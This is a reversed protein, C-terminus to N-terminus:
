KMTEQPIIVLPGVIWGDHGIKGAAYNPLLKKTLGDEDVLFTFDSPETTDPDEILPELLRAWRIWTPNIPEIYGGVATQLQTLTFTGDENEPDPMPSIGGGPSLIYGHTYNM